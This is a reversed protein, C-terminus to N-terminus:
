RHRAHLSGRAPGEGATGRESVRALLQDPTADIHNVVIAPFKKMFAGPIVEMSRNSLPAYLSLRGGEKRAKEYLQDLTEAPAPAGAAFILSSPLIFVFCYFVIGLGICKYLAKFTM